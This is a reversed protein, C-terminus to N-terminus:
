GRIAKIAFGIWERFNTDSLSLGAEYFTIAQELTTRMKHNQRELKVILARQEADHKCLEILPIFNRDFKGDSRIWTLYGNFDGRGLM